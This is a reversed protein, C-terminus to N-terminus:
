FRSVNAAEKISRDRNIKQDSRETDKYSHIYTLLIHITLDKSVYGGM